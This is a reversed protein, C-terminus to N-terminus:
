AGEAQARLADIAESSSLKSNLQAAVSKDGGAETRLSMSSSKKVKAIFDDKEKISKELGAIKDGLEKEKAAATNKLFPVEKQLRLMHLYGVMAIAKMEPSDDELMEKYQSEAEAMFANHLEIKKKDEDSTGAPAEIKKFWPLKEAVVQKFHTDAATRRATESKGSKEESDKLFQAANKKAEAVAGAKETKLDENQVLKSEIFRRAVPPLEKLIPEWDVNAVGLAKIQEISKDTVDAEKLKKLIQEDNASINKDFEKFEPNAEVDMGLRFNRLEELEKKEAETLKAAEAPKAKLEAIQAEVAKKEEALKAIQQKALLKVKAFSETTAPKAHPPLEVKEFEDKPAAAAAAKKDAEVKEDAVKKAKEEDTLKADAEAKVKAEEDAKVKAAEDAKAKAEAKQEDTMAAERSEKMKQAEESEPANETLLTDLADVGEAFSKDDSKSELGPIEGNRGLATLDNLNKEDAM